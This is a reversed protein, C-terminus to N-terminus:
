LANDNKDFESDAPIIKPAAAGITSVELASVSIAFNFEIAKDANCEPPLFHFL